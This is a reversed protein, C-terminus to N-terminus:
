KNAPIVKQIWGSSGRVILIKNTNFPFATMGPQKLTQLLLKGDGSYVTIQESVPADVYLTNNNLYARYKTEGTVQKNKTTSSKSLRKVNVTYIETTVDDEATVTINFENNGINLHQNMPTILLTANKDYTYANFTISETLWDVVANYKFINKHFSPTFSEHQTKISLGGLYADSKVRKVHITYQKKVTTDEDTVEITFTEEDDPMKYVGSGTVTVDSSTPICTFTIAPKEVNCLVKVTYETIQPDFPPSLTGVDTKISKLTVDNVPLRTVHVRYDLANTNYIHTARITIITDGFPLNVKTLTNPVSIYSPKTAEIIISDTLSNVTVYYDATNSNFSPTFSIHNTKVSLSNLIAKASTFELKCNDEIDGETTRIVVNTSGYSKLTLLGTPSVEAVNPNETTWTVKEYIINYPSVTAHLQVTEGTLMYKASEIIDVKNKIVIGNSILGFEKWGDAARYKELSNFPVVLTINKLDLSDFTNSLIEPPNSCKIDILNLNSCSYFVYGGIDTVSPPITISKLNKCGHFVNHGIHRLTVPLSVYKVTLDRFLDNGIGTINVGVYVKDINTTTFPHNDPSYPDWYPGWYQDRIEGLGTLYLERTSFNLLWTINEGIKGQLTTQAHLQLAYLSFLVFLTVLKKM